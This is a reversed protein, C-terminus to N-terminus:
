RCERSESPDGPGSPPSPRSPVELQQTYKVCTNARIIRGLHQPWVSSGVIVKLVRRCITTAKIFSNSPAGQAGGRFLQESSAPPGRGRRCASLECNASDSARLACCSSRGYLARLRRRCPRDRGNENSSNRTEESRLKRNGHRRLARCSRLLSLVDDTLQVFDGALQALRM